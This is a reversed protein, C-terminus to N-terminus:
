QLVQYSHSTLGQEVPDKVRCSVGLKAQRVLTKRKHNTLPVLNVKLASFFSSAPFHKGYTGLIELM